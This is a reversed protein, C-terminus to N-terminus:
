LAPFAVPPASSAARKLFPYRRHKRLQELSDTFGETTRTDVSRKQGITVTLRRLFSSLRVRM